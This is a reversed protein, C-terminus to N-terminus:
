TVLVKNGDIRGKTERCLVIRVDERNHHGSRLTAAHLALRVIDINTFIGLNHDRNVVVLDTGFALNRSGCMEAVPVHVVKNGLPLDAGITTLGPRVDVITSGANQMVNRAHGRLVSDNHRLRGRTTGGGTLRDLNLNDNRGADIADNGDVM